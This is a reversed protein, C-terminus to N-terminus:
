FASDDEWQLQEIRVAQSDRRMQEGIEARYKRYNDTIREFSGAEGREEFVTDMTKKLALLIEAADMTTISNDRLQNGIAEIMAGSYGHIRSMNASFNNMYTTYADTM